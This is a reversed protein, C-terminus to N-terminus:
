AYDLRSLTMEKYSLISDNVSNRVACLPLSASQEARSQEARSQEARSQEATLTYRLPM